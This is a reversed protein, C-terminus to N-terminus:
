RAFSEALPGTVGPRCAFVCGSDPYMSWDTANLTRRATTIFLTGRDGGGFACSTVLTAPVRVFGIQRGTRPDWRSVGGGRWHAVWLMDEDDIACGDPLDDGPPFTICPRRRSLRGSEGDFDFADVRRTRSDIYYATKGDSSWALGNSVSVDDVARISTRGDPFCYLAGAKGEGQWSSTGAWFRGQPDCKGDNFRCRAPDHGEPTHLEHLTRADFDIAALGSTVAAILQGNARPAICGVAFGTDMSVAHRREFDFAHVRGVLLDVCFLRQRPPDWVPSEALDARLAWVLDATLTTM